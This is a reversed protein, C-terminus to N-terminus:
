PRRRLRLSFRPVRAHEPATGGDGMVRGYARALPAATVGHALISLGVTAIVALRLDDLSPMPYAEILLLLYILSALGRPGFWGLFLVTAPRLGLGALALAVPGMRLVTLALIAFLAHRWGMQALDPILIAGSLVFVGLALLQGEAEGFEEAAERLHKSRAAVVLGAAFAALFGNGEVLEASGYALLPLALTSLRLYIAEMWGGALAREALTCGAFAVAAGALPGLVVQAGVFAAWGGAGRDALGAALTAAVLLAPFALGDNLGSEVNLAQRIRQPVSRNSVVAQGLAADTPALAVALAAAGWIGLAPFLLWAAGMGVLMTLPLGIALLRIPIAHRRDLETVDIRSADSFLTLVLTVEALTRIVEGDVDLRVLGLGDAGILLGLAAFAMPPTVVGAEARKSVLAFALLAASLVVIEVAQM